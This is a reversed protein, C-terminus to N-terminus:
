KKEDAMKKLQKYTMELAQKYEKALEPNQTFYKDLAISVIDHLIGNKSELEAIKVKMADMEIRMDNLTARLDVNSSRLTELDDKRIKSALWVAGALIFCFLSFLGAFTTPIQTISSEM